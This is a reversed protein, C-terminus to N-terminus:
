AGNEEPIVYFPYVLNRVANTANVRYHVTITLVGPASTDFEIDEVSIRPEWRDLAARVAADVDERTGQAVRALPQNNAPNITDFYEGGSPERWEGGIFHRLTRGREELWRVAPSASEPAPGYEMTEFIEAISM